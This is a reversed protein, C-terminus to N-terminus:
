LENLEHGGKVISKIVYQPHNNICMYIRGIYEGIAGLVMLNMGGIICIIAVMSTYGSLIYAEYLMKKIIAYMALICGLASVGFGIKIFFRLPKISFSTFGNLWLRILKKISYGSKGSLRQEQVLEINSINQTTRLLLGALYPFPQEYKCIEDIVFRKAMFFSALAVGKPKGLLKQQTYENIYSGLKRSVGKRERAIYKACVVDYGENIKEMFEWIKEIPTQGDDDSTMIFEGKAMKFGAMLASHQGFNKSFNIGIIEQHIEALEKIKHWTGDKSNDNILIIEFKTDPRSNMAQYIKDIVININKEACYCPIVISIDIM